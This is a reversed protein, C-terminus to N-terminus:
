PPNLREMAKDLAAKEAAKHQKDKTSKRRKEAEYVLQELTLTFSVYFGRTYRSYTILGWNNRLETKIKVTQYETSYKFIIESLKWLESVAKVQGDMRSLWFKNDLKWYPKTQLISKMSLYGLLCIKDFDTKENQYFDFWMTKSIGVKPSNAPISDTLEQGNEIRKNINGVTMEFWECAAKFRETKTGSLKLSQQYMAYDFINNLVDNSDDLLGSLLQIPFNFYKVDDKM